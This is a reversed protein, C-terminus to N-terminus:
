KINDMREKWGVLHIQEHFGCVQCDVIHPCVISPNVDGNKSIVYTILAGDKTIECKLLHMPGGCKACYYIASYKCDNDITLKWQGKNRGHTSKLIGSM